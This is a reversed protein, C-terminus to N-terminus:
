ATQYDGSSPQNVTIALELRLLQLKGDSKKPVAIFHRRATATAILPFGNFVNPEDLLIFHGHLTTLNPFSGAEAQIQSFPIVDIHCIQRKVVKLVSKSLRKV